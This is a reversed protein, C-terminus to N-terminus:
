KLRPFVEKATLEISSMSQEFPMPFLAVCDAGAAHFNKIKQACEDPDGAIVWEELWEPPMDRAIAEAGGAAILESLKDNADYAGTLPGPGVANLYFATIDRVADKARKSDKDVCYIAFTVFRHHQDRGARAAGEAIQQRAWDIYKPGILVSGVTGDCLEGSLQLMKPGIAGMYIPVPRKPPYALAVNKFTFNKGEENLEEGNLLRRASTICERLAGLQSVPALGMQNIWLPLGLGIGPMFRGPFIGDLTAIEMALLAPHRVMASVIGTGVPIRSTTALAAAAGSVGGSYFYDEALWMESFGSDEGVRAFECIREPPIASALVLGVTGRTIEM